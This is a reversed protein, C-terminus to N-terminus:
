RGNKNSRWLQTFIKELLIGIAYAENSLEIKDSPPSNHNNAKDIYKKEFDTEEEM